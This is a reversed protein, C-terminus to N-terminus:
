QCNKPDGKNSLIANVDDDKGIMDYGLSTGVEITKTIENVRNISNSPKVKPRRLSRILIDSDNDNKLPTNPNSNTPLATTNQYTTPIVVSKKKLNFTGCFDDEMNRRQSEVTSSLQGPLKGQIKSYEPSKVYDVGDSAFKLSLGNRGIHEEDEEEIWGGGNELEKNLGEIFFECNSKDDYDDNEDKSKSSCANSSANSSTELLLLVNGEDIIKRVRICMHSDDVLIPMTHLIVNM